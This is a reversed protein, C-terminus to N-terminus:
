SPPTTSLVARLRECQKLLGEAGAHKLVPAAAMLEIRAAELEGQGALLSALRCRFQAAVLPANITQCTRIANRFHQLADAQRGEAAALEGL